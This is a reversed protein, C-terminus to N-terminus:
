IKNIINFKSQSLQLNVYLKLLLKRVWNGWHQVFSTYYLVVLINIKITLVYFLEMTALIGGMIRKQWVWKGEIRVRKIGVLRNEM